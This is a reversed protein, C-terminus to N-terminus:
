VVSKRDKSDFGAVFVNGAADVALGDPSSLVPGGGAVTGKIIQQIFGGPTIRFVNDSVLGAVFVNGAADVALASPQNLFDGAGDGTMDILQQIAGGPTIRFVQGVSGEGAVFVNGAADVALV